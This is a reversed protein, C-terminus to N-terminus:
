SALGRLEIMAVPEDMVVATPKAQRTIIRRAVPRSGEGADPESLLLLGHKCCCCCVVM